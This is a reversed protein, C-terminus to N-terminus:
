SGWIETMDMTAVGSGNSSDLFFELTHRGASLSAANITGKVIAYSTSTTTLVLSDSGGGDVRVRLSSTYSGNSSKLRATIVILFGAWTSVDKILDVDKVQTGSTGTIAVENSDAGLLNRGTNMWIAPSAQVLVQTCEEDENFFHDGVALSSLANRDSTTGRRIGRKNANAETIVDGTSWSDLTM